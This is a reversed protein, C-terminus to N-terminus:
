VREASICEVLSDKAARATAASSHRVEAAAERHLHEQTNQQSYSVTFLSLRLMTM